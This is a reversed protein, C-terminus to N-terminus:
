PEQTAEGLKSVTFSFSRKSGSVTTRITDDDVRAFALSLTKNWPTSLTYSGAQPIPDIWRLEVDDIVLDFSGSKTQWSRHGVISIGRTWDGDLAAQTRDGSGQAMRGSALHLWTAEHEVRRTKAATDWTVHATGNLTVKGNSLALWEHDVIVQEADNRTVTLKSTGSLTQGRYGCSGPNKGYEVSLTADSLTVAACPLQSVVFRKLESAAAAAGQGLTFSTGLDVSLSTLGEAESAATVEELAQRAEDLTLPQERERPCATLLLPLSAAFLLRKM